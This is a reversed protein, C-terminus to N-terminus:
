ARDAIQFLIQGAEIEVGSELLVATLVGDRDAEVANFTKMAEILALKQGRRIADGVRVFPPADPSPTLHLIGFIPARIFPEAAPPPSSEIIERARTAATVRRPLEAPSSVPSAGIEVRLPERIIRVQTGAEVIELEAIRSQAVLAVLDRIRTADM